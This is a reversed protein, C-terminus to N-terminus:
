HNFNFLLIYFGIEQKFTKLQNFVHEVRPRYNKLMQSEKVTLVHSPIKNKGNKKLVALWMLDMIKLKM